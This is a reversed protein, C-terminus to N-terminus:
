KQGKMARANVQRAVFAQAFRGALVVFTVMIVTGVGSSLGFRNKSFGLGAGVLAGVPLLIAIAPLCDAIRVGKRVM